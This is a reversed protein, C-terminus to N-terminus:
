GIFIRELYQRKWAEKDEWTEFGEEGPHPITHFIWQLKGTIVDYARIHGPAAPPAEDVRTGLILLNKYVTGPSTNVVFLDSVDRGLNEHLDISGNDGFSPIPKGTTADIAFTNSGATFFIRKDTAGDSWYAVGRSNIMNHFASRNSDFETKANVDFVWQQTGTAADVAFLKMQPSVGYLVGDVM